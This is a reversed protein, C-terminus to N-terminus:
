GAGGESSVRSGLGHRPATGGRTGDEGGDTAAGAGGGGGRCRVEARGSWERGGRAAADGGEGEGGCPLDFHFGAGLHHPQAAKHHIVSRNRSGHLGNAAIAPDGTATTDLSVPCVAALTRAHQSSEWPVRKQRM